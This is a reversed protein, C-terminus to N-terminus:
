SLEKGTCPSLGQEQISGPGGGAMQEGQGDAKGVCGLEQPLALTGAEGVTLLERPIVANGNIM